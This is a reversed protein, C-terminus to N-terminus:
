RLGDQLADTPQAVPGAFCRAFEFPSVFARETRDTGVVAARGGSELSMSVVRDFRLAEPHRSGGHQM